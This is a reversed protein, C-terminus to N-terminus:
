GLVKAGYTNVQTGSFPDFDLFRDPTMASDLAYDRQLKQYLGDTFRGKQSMIERPSRLQAKMPAPCPAITVAVLLPMLQPLPM